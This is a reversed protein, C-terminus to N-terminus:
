RIHPVASATSSNSMKTKHKGVHMNRESHANLSYTQDQARGLGFRYLVYTGQWKLEACLASLDIHM